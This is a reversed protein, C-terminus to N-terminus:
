HLLRRVDKQRQGYINGCVTTALLHILHKQKTFDTFMCNLTFSVLVTVVRYVHIERVDKMLNDYYSTVGDVVTWNGM